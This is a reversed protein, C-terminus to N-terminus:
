DIFEFASKDAKNYSVVVPFDLFCIGFLFYACSLKNAYSKEEATVDCLECVLM